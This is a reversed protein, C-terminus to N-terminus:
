NVSCVLAVEDGTSDTVIKQAVVLILPGCRSLERLKVRVAAGGCVALFPVTMHLPTNQCM